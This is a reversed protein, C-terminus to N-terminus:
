PGLSSYTPASDFKSKLYKHIAQAYLRAGLNSWHMDYPHNIWTNLINPDRVDPLYGLMPTIEIEPVGDMVEGALAPVAGYVIEYYTPTLLFDINKALSKMRRIGEISVRKSEDRDEINSTMPHYPNRGLFEELKGKTAWSLFQPYPSLWPVRSRVAGAVAKRLGLLEGPNELKQTPYFVINGYQCDKNSLDAPLSVCNIITKLDPRKKDIAVADRWTFRRYIDATIFNVLILDPSYKSAEHEVVAPMQGLGIGDIALNLVKIKKANLRRLLKADENLLDELSTAWPLDNHICAALSDGVIAIRYEGPVREYQDDRYSVHGHNNTIVHNTRIVKGSENFWQFPLDQHPLYRYGLDKDFRFFAQPLHLFNIENEGLRTLHFIRFGVELLILTVAISVIPLWFKHRNKFSIKM